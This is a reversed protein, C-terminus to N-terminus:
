KAHRYEGWSQSSETKRRKHYSRRQTCGSCGGVCEQCFIHSCWDIHYKFYSSDNGNPLNSLFLKENYFEFQHVSLLNSTEKDKKGTCEKSAGKGQIGGANTPEIPKAAEKEEKTKPASVEVGPKPNNQFYNFIRRIDLDYSCSFVGRYLFTAPKEKKKGLKTELEQIAEAANAGPDVYVRALTKFEGSRQLKAFGHSLEVREQANPIKNFYVTSWTQKQKGESLSLEANMGKKMFRYEKPSSM